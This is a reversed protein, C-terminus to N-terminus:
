RGAIFLTLPPLYTILLVVVLLLIFFPVTDRYVKMLPRNFRFSSLFLNLGVPPTLYGLELNALFIIGLHLPHINFVEGMPVILPVVVMIASFIDMLCGVILLFLNLILLFVIRSEINARVWDAARLPIQMDVMYNTLGMAVSLIILIGGVLTASKIFAPILDTKIRIDRYIFCQAIFAYCVIIASTEVITTLGSFICFLALFPLAVEWKSELLASIAEKLDFSVPTVSSRFGQQMGFLSIVSLLLLGPVVGAIFLKDIPTHSIVGYFIVPLSPPFLLGLSGTTTLLGISFRKEFGNQVLVPLLIAGLALITVGSAGTFTTFFTCVCAAAVAVGGPMWGLLARFLRILRRSAGGEALIYGALTFLPVSPLIPSAVIRYAEVPIAAVPIEQVFFLLLAVGGIIAFIPSGLIGAAILLFIAPVLLNAIQLPTCLFGFAAAFVLGTAAIARGSWHDSAHWILRLAVVGFSIPMIVIATWQPMWGAILNPSSYESRVFEFGAWALSGCVATAMAATSISIIRRPQAPLFDVGAHLSLHRNERAAIMAGLFGVWLTLHRVYDTTGVLGVIGLIRSFIEILPFLAMLCLGAATM